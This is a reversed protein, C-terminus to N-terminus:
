LGILVIGCADQMILGIIELGSFKSLLFIMGFNLIHESEKYIAGREVSVLNVFIQLTAGWLGPAYGLHCFLFETQYAKYRENTLVCM